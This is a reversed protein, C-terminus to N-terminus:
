SAASAFSYVGQSMRKQPKIGSQARHEKEIERMPRFGYFTAVEAAHKLFSASSPSASM